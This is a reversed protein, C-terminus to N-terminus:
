DGPPAELPDERTGRRREEEEPVPDAEKGIDRTKEWQRREEETGEEGAAPSQEEREDRTAKEFSRPDEEGQKGTTERREHQNM